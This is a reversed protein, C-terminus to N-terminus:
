DIARGGKGRTARRAFLLERAHRIIHIADSCMGMGEVLIIQDVTRVIESLREARLADGLIDRHPDLRADMDALLSLSPLPLRDAEKPELKLMGGGYSRGVMEAGLLTVSNLAALPLLRRGVHRRGEALRVGYVSNLIDVRAANTTLRPRAHDMYTLLLDPKEVLPVRWWPRRMRCKYAEHVNQSEGWAIYRKAAASPQEPNPAFLYCAHGDDRLADWAATAFTLGRLHKSGPPSIRRLDRESLGHAAATDASLAFYGNNGTVAGLYTEGWNLLSEFHLGECATRYVDIAHSQLLAPTWKGHADPRYWTWASQDPQALDSLSRAQYVEFCPAPGQGEALLLVVEELVGPFVLDEFTVLRVTKFRNLLFRRIEAAYNVSLLEAPLVLGLRGHPKLFSAAHVVFPAWASALGSLRVGQALTARLAKSRSEGAFQQYRIYPPNGVVVDFSADAAVDFFDATRISAGWGADAVLTCAAAASAAHMEVGHLARSVQARPSGLRELREGSAILFAAEGCSPELVTDDSSRIAWQAIFQCMERPTFFAGRAKRLAPSDTVPVTPWSLSLSRRFLATRCRQRSGYRVSCPADM